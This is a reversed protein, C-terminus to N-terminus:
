IEASSVYLGPNDKHIFSIEIENSFIELKKDTLFMFQGDEPLYKNNVVSVGNIHREKKVIHYLPIAADDIIIDKKNNNTVVYHKTWFFNDFKNLESYTFQSLFRSEIQISFKSLIKQSHNHIKNDHPSSMNICFMKKNKWYLRFFFKIMLKKYLSQGRYQKSIKFDCLYWTKKCGDFQRLIACISGVIKNEEEIVLYHVQGLQEFFSFYDHKLGHKISFNTQGLPYSFEREFEKLKESYIFREEKKDLNIRLVKM